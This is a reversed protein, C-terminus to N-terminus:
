KQDGGDNDHIEDSCIIEEDASPEYESERVVPATPIERDRYPDIMTKKIVPYSICVTALGVFSFYFLVIVAFGLATVALQGATPVTVVFLSSLIIIATILINKPLAYFALILSNRYLKKITIDFTVLILYMYYQMFLLIILGLVCVALPVSFLMSPNGVYCSYWFWIAFGLMVFLLTNLIGVIFSQKFNKKATDIYDDWVFAHKEQSFNRLVYSFGAMAPGVFIVTCCSVAFILNLQVLRGFKRFYIEWFRFVGKKQRENKSVGPGDKNYDSFGFLGMKVDKGRHNRQKTLVFSDCVFCDRFTVFM